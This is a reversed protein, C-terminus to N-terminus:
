DYYDVVQGEWVWMRQDILWIYPAPKEEDLKRDIAWELLRLLAGFSNDQEWGIKGVAELAETWLQSNHQIGVHQIGRYSHTSKNRGIMDSINDFVQDFDVDMPFDKLDFVFHDTDPHTLIPLTEGGEDSLALVPADSLLFPTRKEDEETFSISERAWFTPSYHKMMAERSARSAQWLGMDWTYTSMNAPYKWSYKTENSDPVKPAALFHYFRSASIRHSRGLVVQIDRNTRSDFPKTWRVARPEENRESRSAFAPSPEPKSKLELDFGSESESDDDSDFDYDSDYNSQFFEERVISFRQVGRKHAPRIAMEWIMDQIEQPLRPFPHFPKPKKSDFDQSPASDADTSARDPENEISNLM